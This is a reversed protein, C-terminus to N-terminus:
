ENLVELDNEWEWTPPCKSWYVNIKGSESFGTIIGVGTKERLSKSVHAEFEKTLGHSSRWRILVVDGVKM